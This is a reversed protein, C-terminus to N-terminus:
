PFSRIIATASAVFTAAAAIDILAVITLAIRLIM